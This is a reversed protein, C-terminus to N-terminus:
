QEVEQWGVFDSVGSNVDRDEVAIADLVHDHLARYQPVKARSFVIHWCQHKLHM